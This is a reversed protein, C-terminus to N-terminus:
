AFGNNTQSSRTVGRWLRTTTHRIEFTQKCKARGIQRLALASGRHVDNADLGATEAICCYLDEPARVTPVLQSKSNPCVTERPLTRDATASRCTRSNKEFLDKKPRKKAPGSCPVELTKWFQRGNIRTWEGLRKMQRGTSTLRARMGQRKSIAVRRAGRAPWRPLARSGRRRARNPPAAPRDGPATERM